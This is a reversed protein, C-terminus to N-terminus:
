DATRHPLNLSPTSPPFSTPMVEGAGAKSHCADSIAELHRPTCGRLDMRVSPTETSRDAVPVRLIQEGDMDEMATKEFLQKLKSVVSVSWKGVFSKNPAMHEFLLLSFKLVLFVTM